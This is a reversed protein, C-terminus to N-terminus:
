VKLVCLPDRKLVFEVVNEHGIYKIGATVKRPIYEPERLWIFNQLKYDKFALREVVVREMAIDVNSKYNLGLKVLDFSLKLCEGLNYDINLNSKQRLIKFERCLKGVTDLIM